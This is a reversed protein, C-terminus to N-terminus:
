VRLRIYSKPLIVMGLRHRENSTNSVVVKMDILVKMDIVILRFQNRTVCIYLHFFLYLVKKTWTYHKSYVKRCFIDDRTIQIICTNKYVVLYLM